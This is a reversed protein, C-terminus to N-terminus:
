TPISTNSTPSGPCPRCIIGPTVAIVTNVYNLMEDKGNGTLLEISYRLTRAFSAASAVMERPTIRGGETQFASLSRELFGIAARCYTDVADSLDTRKDRMNLRIVIKFLNQEAEKLFRHYGAHFDELRPLGAVSVCAPMFETDHVLEGRGVRVRAITLLSLAYGEPRMEKGPGVGAHLDPPLVSAEAPVGPRQSRRVAGHQVLEDKLMLDFENGEQTRSDEVEVTRVLATEAPDVGALTEFGTAM